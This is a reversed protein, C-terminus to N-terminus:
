ANVTAIKVVLREIQLVSFGAREAHGVSALVRITSLEEDRRNSGRPQVAVVDHEALHEFAQVNDAVDLTELGVAAIHGDLSYEDLLGGDLLQDRNLAWHSTAEAPQQREM